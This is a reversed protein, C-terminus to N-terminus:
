GLGLLYQKIDESARITGFVKVSAFTEKVLELPVDKNIILMGLMKLRIKQATAKIKELDKKAFVYVGTGTFKADSGVITELVTNIEPANRIENDILDLGFAKSERIRDLEAAHVKAQNRIATRIFDTRNSYFGQEVLLDVQGLDIAGINITIKELENRNEVM